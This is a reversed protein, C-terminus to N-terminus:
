QPKPFPFPVYDKQNEPAADQIEKVKELNSFVRNINPYASMDLHYRTKSNFVQPYLFVDAATLVDGFVFKGGKSHEETLSQVAKLGQTIWFTAWEARKM